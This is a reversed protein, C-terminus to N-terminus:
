FLNQNLSGSSTRIRVIFFCYIGQQVLLNPM